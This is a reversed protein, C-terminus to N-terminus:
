SGRAVAKPSAAQRTCRDVVVLGGLFVWGLVSYRFGDFGINYVFPLVWDGLMGAVLMGALGGLAGYAYARSFGVAARSRLRWGLIGLACAIWIFCALGAVGTQAVIDAYNNHSNFRVAYAVGDLGLIPFYPTYWYYNAFGLGLVPNIRVIEGLIRWAELRTTLSYENDGGMVLGYVTPAKALALASGSLAVWPMLRPFGVLLVVAVAVLPPLWGSSWDRQLFLGVYLTALALGALSLRWVAAQGRNFVAQCTALAAVWVWFVSGLETRGLFLQSVDGALPVFHGAVHVAALILFLWTIRELGRESRVQQTTLLFAAASFLFIALGGVQATLPATQAYYLWPEAGAFFALVAVSIFALLPWLLGAPVEEVRHRAALELVWLGVLLGVLLVGVNLDSQTGTGITFPVTLVGGVLAGLGLAPHRL